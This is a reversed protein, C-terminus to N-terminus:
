RGAAPSDHASTGAMLLGITERSATRPDVEGVIHGEYMVLIRDSISMAEDLDESIVVVATGADRQGILRQHIYQASGVDIGRTPQAVLLVKPHRALERAMILKQINGGSLTRAHTDLGPTKIRFDAVLGACHRRVAAPRLFGRRFYASNTSDVLLLNEAVTFDAILGDRMREEPVYGFGAQRIAAPRRGTVDTGDLVVRGSSVPRLGAIAEALDRQGNGSVGAIAVIEGACAEFSLGRVAETGRDGTVHLGDVSLRVEGRRVTPPATVATVDHGVMMTALEQRSTGAAPVTAVKKGGRLVTIRDSLELVENLKHSIFVVGLGVRVMERLVRFLDGVEGPTLVATPEDLILLSV